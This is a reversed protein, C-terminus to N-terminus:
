QELAMVANITSCGTIGVSAYTEVTPKYDLNSGNSWEQDTVHGYCDLSAIRSRAVNKVPMWLGYGSGAGGTWSNLNAPDGTPKLLLAHGDGPLARRRSRVRTSWSTM